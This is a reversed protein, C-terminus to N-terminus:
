FICDLCNLIFGEEERFFAAGDSMFVFDLSDFTMSRVPESEFTVSVAFFVDLDNTELNPIVFGITDTGMTAAVVIKITYRAPPNPVLTCFKGGGRSGGSDVTKDGRSGGSDVNEGGRGGGRGGGDIIGGNEGNVDRGGNKGIGSISSLSNTADTRFMVM